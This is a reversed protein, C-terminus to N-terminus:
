STFLNQRNGSKDDTFQRVRTNTVGMQLRWKKTNYTYTKVSDFSKDGDYDIRRSCWKIRSKFGKIPQLQSSSTMMCLLILCTVTLSTVTMFLVTLVYTLFWNLLITEILDNDNQIWLWGWTHMPFKQWYCLYAGALGVVSVSITWWKVCFIVKHCDYFRVQVALITLFPLESRTLISQCMKFCLLHIKIDLASPILFFASPITYIYLRVFASIFQVIM